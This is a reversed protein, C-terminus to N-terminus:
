TYLWHPFVSDNKINNEKMMEIANQFDEEILIFRHKSSLGFIRKAHVLKCKAIFNDIDGGLNEFMNKNEKIIKEMNVETLNTEWNMDKIMKYAIDSLNKNSYKDIRHVWQFRRELGQNVSFFCKKIDEEYGAIICCFNDKNESLFANLTDIAEKSFSDRDKQGPGLAYAEDIFLVGGVCSKLLKKTKIATQGLYEGVFDERKAIKFIGNKSLFGMKKYIEGIIASVTTKGCGPPGLVISHLYDNQSRKNLGTLYYLIQYFITEKLKDMGILKDLNILEDLINWLMFCDINRNYIKTQAFEILSKLNNIKPAPGKGLKRRKVPQKDIDISARKM